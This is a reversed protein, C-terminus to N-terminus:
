IHQKKKQGNGIHEEDATKDNMSLLFIYDRFLLFFIGYENIILIFSFMRMIKHKLSHTFVLIQNKVENCSSTFMFCNRWFTIFCQSRLIFHEDLHKFYIRHIRSLIVVNSSVCGVILDNKTLKSNGLLIILQLHGQLNTVSSLIGCM